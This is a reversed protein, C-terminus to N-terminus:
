HTAPIRLKGVTFYLMAILNDTSRFGPAMRFYRADLQERLPFASALVAAVDEAAKKTRVYRPIAIDPKIALALNPDGIVM